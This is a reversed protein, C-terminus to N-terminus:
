RGGDARLDRLMEVQVEQMEMLRQMQRTILHDVKDHLQRVELEAKLNTRYDNEARKRDRDEMRNQSMMIIPAQIAALCSLVLNLLIFPFPDFRTPPQTATNFAMWGAMVVGFLGIFRWSGGFSAVRDAVRDGLTGPALEENLNKALIEEDRLSDLVQHELTTLEGLDDSIERAIYEVRIRNHCGLCLPERGDWDPKELRIFEALAPRIGQPSVLESAM